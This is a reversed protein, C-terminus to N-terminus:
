NMTSCFRVGLTFLGAGMVEHTGHICRSFIGAVVKTKAYPWTGVSDGFYHFCPLQSDAPGHCSQRRGRFVNHFCSVTGPKSQFPLPVIWSAGEGVM